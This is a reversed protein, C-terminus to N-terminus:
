CEHLQSDSILFIIVYCLCQVEVISGIKGSATAQINNVVTQYESSGSKLKFMKVKEDGMPEWCDPVKVSEAIYLEHM